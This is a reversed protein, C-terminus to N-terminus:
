DATTTPSASDTSGERAQAITRYYYHHTLSQQATTIQSEWAMLPFSRTAVPGGHSPSTGLRDIPLIRKGHHTSPMVMHARVHHHRSTISARYYPTAAASPGPTTRAPGLGSCKWEIPRSSESATTYSRCSTVFSFHYAVGGLTGGATPQTKGCWRVNDRPCMM